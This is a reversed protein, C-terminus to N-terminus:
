GIAARLEALDAEVMREILQQFSITPGWGLRERARTADGVLRGDEGSRMLSQDVRIHDKASLGLHAFAIEAFEAVTHPIGSALIYDDPHERQLMMWAGRMVDGAFSWDRVADLDGLVVEEALGLKIRAAARTIKRSVFAEPRRESEHNYLIGSCAFLGEHARFQGVLQHAALKATAYPSRPFCATGERQPTEPADGFVTSSTAVFVRTDLSHSRATELLVATADAIAALARAPREWSDPVFSPAALHYLEGPKLDCVAATLSDPDLLDGSVLNVRGRLHESAGLSEDTSGRVMGTVAYGKKLLLESLFSGDQGTLGTILATPPDPERVAV